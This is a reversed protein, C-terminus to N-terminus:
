FILIIKIFSILNFPNYVFNEIVLTIKTIVHM